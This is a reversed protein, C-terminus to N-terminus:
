MLKAHATNFSLIYKGYDSKELRKGLQFYEEDSIWGNRWVIEEICAIKLGQRREVAAIYNAADLLSDMTGTDLWAM